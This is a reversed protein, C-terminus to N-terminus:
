IGYAYKRMLELAARHDEVPTVAKGELSLGGNYNIKKLGDFFQVYCDMEETPFCRTVPAAIHTHRLYAATETLVSMDEGEESMHFFDALLMINERAAAKVVQLGEPVTNLINCEKQRLPEVAITLPSGVLLASLKQLMDNIQKYATEKSFGDPVNRAGGSGFVVISAGLESARSIAKKAYIEFAATDVNEGTVKIDRPLMINFAHVNLGSKKVDAKLAAYDEDSLACVPALPLEIYDYGMEMIKIAMGYEEGSPLVQPLGVCCGIKLDM